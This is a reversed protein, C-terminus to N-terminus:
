DVVSQYTLRRVVTSVCKATVGFRRVLDAQKEGSAYRHRMERVQDHTLSFKARVPRGAAERSVHRRQTARQGNDEECLRCRRGGTPRMITNAEDFPHGRKCHTLDAHLRRIQDPKLGRLTNIRRTVPELHDPNVCHRVRCLHDLELGEPIPGKFTIYAYRHAYGGGIPRGHADKVFFIGYGNRSVARRWLWCRTRLCVVYKRTFRTLADARM